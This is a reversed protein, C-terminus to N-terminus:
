IEAHGMGLLEGYVLENSEGLRQGSHRVAGPTKSLKPVIGQMRLPGLDADDVTVVMERAVIHPNDILDAASMVPTGPADHAQFLMDIEALTRAKMWQAVAEAFEDRHAICQTFSNLRSDEAMGMATLIALASEETVASFSFYRGDGTEFLGTYPVNRHNNGSRGLTKGLQDLIVM